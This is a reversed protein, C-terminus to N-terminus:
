RQAGIRPGAAAPELAATTQRLREGLDEGSREWYLPGAGDSLLEQALAVGHPDVPEPAALREMEPAAETVQPRTAALRIGLTAPEVEERAIRRLAAALQTRDPRAALRSVLRDFPSM